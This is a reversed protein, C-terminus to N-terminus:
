CTGNPAYIRIPDHPSEIKDVLEFKSANIKGRDPQFWGGTLTVTGNAPLTEDGQLILAEFTLEGDTDHTSYEQGIKAYSTAIAPIGREALAYAIQKHYQGRSNPNWGANTELWVPSCGNSEISAAVEQGVTPNTGQEWMTNQLIPPITATIVGFLLMTVLLYEVWRDEGWSSRQVTLIFEVSILLLIVGVILTARQPVRFMHMGPWRYVLPSAMVILVGVLLASLCGLMWRVPFRDPEFYSWLIAIAAFLCIPLSVVAYADKNIAEWFVFGSDYWFGILSSVFPKLTIGNQLVTDRGGRMLLPVVSLLKPLGVLFSTIGAVSIAQWARLALFICGAMIALYFAYYANGLLLIFGGAIGVIGGALRPKEAIIAPRLQWAGVVIWPWALAKSIHANHNVMPLIVIITIPVAYLPRLERRAFYYGVIGAGIYHAFTMVALWDDVPVGPIFFVTWPPYFGKFFPNEWVMMGGYWPTTLLDGGSRVAARFYLAPILNSLMDGGYPIGNDLHAKLDLISVVVGIVAGILIKRWNLPERYNQIRYLAWHMVPPRGVM